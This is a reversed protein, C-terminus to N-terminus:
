ETAELVTRVSREDRFIDQISHETTEPIDVTYQQADDTSTGRETQDRRGLRGCQPARNGLLCVLDLNM